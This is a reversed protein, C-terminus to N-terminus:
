SLWFSLAVLWALRMHKEELQAIAVAVGGVCM